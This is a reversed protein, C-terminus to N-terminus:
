FITVGVVLRFVIAELHLVVEEEDRVVVLQSRRWGIVLTEADLHLPNQVDARPSSNPRDLKSILMRFGLDASM